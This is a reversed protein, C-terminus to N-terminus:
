HYQELVDVEARYGAQDYTFGRVKGEQEVKNNRFILSTCIM